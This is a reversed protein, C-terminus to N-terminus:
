VPVPCGPETDEWMWSDEEEGDECQPDAPPHELAEWYEEDVSNLFARSMEVEYPDDDVFVIQCM